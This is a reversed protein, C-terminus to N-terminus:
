QGTFKTIETLFSAQMRGHKGQFGQRVSTFDFETRATYGHVASCQVQHCPKAPHVSSQLPWLSGTQSSLSCAGGAPMGLSGTQSSLSCTGGGPKSLRGKQSAPKMPIGALITTNLNSELIFSQVTPKSSVKKPVKVKKKVPGQFTKKRKKGRTPTSPPPYDDDKDSSSSERGRSLPLKLMKVSHDSEGSDLDSM